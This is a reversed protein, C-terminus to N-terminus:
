NGRESVRVGTEQEETQEQLKINKLILNFIKGKQAYGIDYEGPRGFPNFSSTYVGYKSVLNFKTAPEKPEPFTICAKVPIDPVLEKTNARSGPFDYGSTPINNINVYTYQNGLNDVLYTSEKATPLFIYVSYGMKNTHVLSLRIKGDKLREVLVLEVKLLDNEFVASTTIRQKVLDQPGSPETIQGASKPTPVEPEETEIEEEVPTGLVEIEGIFLWDTAYSRRIKELKITVKSATISGTQETWTGRYSSGPNTSTRGFLSEMIDANWTEARQVNGPNYRIKSINYIGQLDITITIVMPENYDSNAWGVCGDEARDSAPQYDLSGDTIDSPSEGVYSNSDGAGNTAVVVPKGLAINTLKEANLPEPTKAEEKAPLTKVPTKEPVPRKKVYEPPSPQPTPLSLLWCGLSFTIISVILPLPKRIRASQSHPLPPQPESLLKRRYHEGASAALLWKILRWILKGAALCLFFGLVIIAVYAFGVVMFLILAIFVVLWLM